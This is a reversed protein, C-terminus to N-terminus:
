EREVDFMEWKDPNEDVIGGNISLFTLGKESAKFGHTMQAKFYVRDGTSVIRKNLTLDHKRLQDEDFLLEAEGSVIIMHADVSHKHPPIISHVVEQPKGAQINEWAYIAVGPMDPHTCKKMSTIVNM